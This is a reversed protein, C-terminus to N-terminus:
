AVALVPLFVSLMLAGLLFRFDLNRDLTVKGITEWLTM